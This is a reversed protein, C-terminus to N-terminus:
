ITESVENGMLLRVAAEKSIAQGYYHWTQKKSHMIRDTIRDILLQREEYTPTYDNWYDKVCHTSWNDIYSQVNFGRGRVACHIDIYRNYVFQQKDLFFKVHGKGLVFKEPIHKISGTRIAERLCFPLRKIERHEALLHEDTLCRVHIASNIRTM